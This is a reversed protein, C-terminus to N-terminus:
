SRWSATEHTHRSKEDMFRQNGKKLRALAEGADSPYPETDATRSPPEKASAGLAMGLSLGGAAVIWQRRNLNPSAMITVWKLSQKSPNSRFALGGKERRDAKM